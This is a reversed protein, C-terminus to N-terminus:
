GGSGGWCGCSQVHRIKSNKHLGIKVVLTCHLIMAVSLDKEVIAEEYFFTFYIFGSFLEIEPYSEGGKERKRIM